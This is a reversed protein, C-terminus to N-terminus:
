DSKATEEDKAKFCENVWEVLRKLQIPGPDEIVEVKGEDFERITLVPKYRKGQVVYYVWVMNGTQGSGISEVLDLSTQIGEGELATELLFPIDASKWFNM